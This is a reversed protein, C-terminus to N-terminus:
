CKKTKLSTNIDDIRFSNDRAPLWGFRYRYATYCLPKTSMNMLDLKGEFNINHTDSDQHTWLCTAHSPMLPGVSLITM